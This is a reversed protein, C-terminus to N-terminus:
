GQMESLCCVFPTACLASKLCHQADPVKPPTLFQPSSFCLRTLRKARLWPEGTCNLNLEPQAPPLPERGPTQEAGPAARGWSKSEGRPRNEVQPGGSTWERGPTREARSTRERTQSCSVWNSEQNEMQSLYSQSTTNNSLDPQASRVRNTAENKPSPAFGCKWAWKPRPPGPAQAPGAARSSPRDKAQRSMSEAVIVEQTGDVARFSQGTNHRARHGGPSVGASHQRQLNPLQIWKM